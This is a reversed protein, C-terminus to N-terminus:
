VQQTLKLAGTDIDKRILKLCSEFDGEILRGGSARMGYQMMLNISTGFDDGVIFGHSDVYEGDDNMRLVMM